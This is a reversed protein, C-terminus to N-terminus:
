RTGWSFPAPSASFTTVPAGYQTPTATTATITATLTAIPPIRPIVYTCANWNQILTNAIATGAHTSTIWKPPSGPRAASNPRRAAARRACPSTTRRRRAPSTGPPRTTRPRRASRARRGGARVDVSGRPRTLSGGRRRDDRVGVPDDGSRPRLPRTRDAAAARARRQEDVRQQDRREEPRHPQRVDQDAEVRVRVPVRRPARGHAHEAQEAQEVHERGDVAREPPRQRRLQVDGPLGVVDHQPQRRRRPGARDPRHEARHGRRARERREQRGGRAQQHRDGPRDGRRTAARGARAGSRRRDRAAPQPEADRGDARHDHGASSASSACDTSM